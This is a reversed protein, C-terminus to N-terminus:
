EKLEDKIKQLGEKSIDTIEMITADTFNKNALM